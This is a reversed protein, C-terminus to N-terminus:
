DFQDLRNRMKKIHNEKKKNDNILESIKKELNKVESFKDVEVLYKKIFYITISIAVDIALFMAIIISQEYIKGNVYHLWCFAVIAITTQLYEFIFIQRVKIANYSVYLNAIIYLTGFVYTYEQIILEGRSTFFSAFISSIVTFFLIFYAM